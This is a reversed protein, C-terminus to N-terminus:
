RLDPTVDFLRRHETLAYRDTMGAIFDAVVRAHDREDARGAERAWDEPMASLDELYRGFLDSVVSQADRMVRDVYAHRYMRATLLRKVGREAEAMGSSFGVIQREAARIDDVGAPALDAIRWASEAIADEVLRTIVRRVTEHGARDADLGPHLRRVESLIDALLPAEALDDLVFLGARLGDDVDHADYAIDDAIAAAQAEASAYTALGLDHEAAYDVIAAPLGGSAYGGTPRGERDLLPGNHKVVGELSEFTLNLGDFAAYRRELRTLTRLSQANHDFGGFEGMCADLAKEGAHGFPPHGLDHALAITEALDEDLGLARAISRAIQAVELTHTLRTRYHDGEHYVFVQTKHKLRRFSTSHLVRDRDRQFETRTPSAPEPTLRGRSRTPDAAYPARPRLIWTAVDVV